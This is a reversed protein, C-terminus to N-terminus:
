FLSVDDTNNGNKDIIMKIQKMYAPTIFPISDIIFRFSKYKNGELYRISYNSFLDNRVSIMNKFFIKKDDVILGDNELYVVKLNRSNIFWIISFMATILFLPLLKETNYSSFLLLVFYAVAAILLIAPMVKTHLITTSSSIRRKIKKKVM